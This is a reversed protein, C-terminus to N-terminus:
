RFRRGSFMFPESRFWQNRTRSKVAVRTDPTVYPLLNM